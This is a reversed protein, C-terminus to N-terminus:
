RSFFNSKNGQKQLIWSFLFVTRLCRQWIYTYAAQNSRRHMNQDQQVLSPIMNKILLRLTEFDHVSFTTDASQSYGKSVSIDEAFNDIFVETSQNASDSNEMLTIHEHIFIDSLNQPLDVCCELPSSAKLVLCPCAITGKCIVRPSLAFTPVSNLPLVYINFKKEDSQIDELAVSVVARGPRQPALSFSLTGDAAIGSFSLFLLPNDVSTVTFTALHQGDLTIEM